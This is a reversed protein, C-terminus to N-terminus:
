AGRLYRSFRTSVPFFLPPHNRARGTEQGTVLTFNKRKRKRGDMQDNQDILDRFDVTNLPLDPDLLIGAVLLV